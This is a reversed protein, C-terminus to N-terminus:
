NDCEYDIEWNLYVRAKKLDELGNKKNARLLYKLACGRCHKKFGEIGLVARIVDIAEVNLGDLMYHNPKDVRENKQKEATAKTRTRDELFELTAKTAKAAKEYSPLGTTTSKALAEKHVRQLQRMIKYDKQLKVTEYLNSLYKIQELMIEVDAIEEAIHELDDEDIAEILEGLEEQLKDYQNENGYFNAITRLEDNIM